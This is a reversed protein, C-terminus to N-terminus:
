EGSNALPGIVVMRRRAEEWVADPITLAGSEPVLIPDDAIMIKGKTFGPIPLKKYWQLRTQTFHLNL